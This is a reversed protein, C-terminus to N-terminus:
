ASGGGVIGCAAEVSGWCTAVRCGCAGVPMVVEVDLRESPPKDEIILLYLVPAGGKPPTDEGATGVKAVAVGVAGVRGVPFATYVTACADFIAFTEVISRRSGSSQFSSAPSMMKM